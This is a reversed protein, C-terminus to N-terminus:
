ETTKEQENKTREQQYKEIEQQEINNLQQYIDNLINKLVYAPLKSNEITNILEQETEQVVISFPKM